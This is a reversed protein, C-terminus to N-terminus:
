SGHWCATPAHDLAAPSVIHDIPDQHHATQISGNTSDGSLWDDGRVSRSANSGDQTNGFGLPCDIWLTIRTNQPHLNWIVGCRGTLGKLNRPSSVAKVETWHPACPAQSRPPYLMSDSVLATRYTASMWVRPDASSSFLGGVPNACHGRHGRLNQARWYLQGCILFERPPSHARVSCM